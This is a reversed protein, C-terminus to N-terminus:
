GSLEAQYANFHKIYAKSISPEQCSGQKQPKSRSLQGSLGKAARIYPKTHFEPDM